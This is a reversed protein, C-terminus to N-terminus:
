FFYIRTRDAFRGGGKYMHAGKGFDQIRGQYRICNKKLNQYVYKFCFFSNFDQSFNELTFFPLLYPKSVDMSTM